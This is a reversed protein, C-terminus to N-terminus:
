AGQTIAESDGILPRIKDVRFYVLYKNSDDLGTPYIKPDQRKLCEILSSNKEERMKTLYLRKGCYGEGREVFMYAANPNSQLNKHSLRERLVLGITNDAFVRPVAYLAMDVKGESDATALIGLGQANEFYDSLTM